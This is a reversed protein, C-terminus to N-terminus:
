SLGLGGDGDPAEWDVVEEVLGVGLWGMLLSRTSWAIVAGLRLPVGAAMGARRVEEDLTALPLGPSWM